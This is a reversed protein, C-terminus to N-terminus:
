NTSVNNRARQNKDVQHHLRNVGGFSQNNCFACPTVDWFAANNMAVATFVEFKVHIYKRGWIGPPLSGVRNTGKSFSLICRNIEARGLPGLLTITEMDGGSTPVM